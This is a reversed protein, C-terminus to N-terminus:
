HTILIRFRMNDGIVLIYIGAKIKSLDVKTAKEKLIGKREIQGLINILSYGMETPLNEIKLIESVPNPHIKIGSNNNITEISTPFLCLFSDTSVCIFDVYYMAESACNVTDTLVDDYFNGLAIYQYASDAIFTGEIRTWSNQNTIISDCHVNSFNNILAPNAISSPLTSFRFGFNNTAGQENIADARSL